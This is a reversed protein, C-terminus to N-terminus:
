ILEYLLIIYIFIVCKQWLVMKVSKVVLAFGDTITSGELQIMTHTLDASFELAECQIQCHQKTATLKLHEALLCMVRLESQLTNQALSIFPRHPVLLVKENRKSQKKKRENLTERVCCFYFRKDILCTLIQLKNNIIVIQSLASNM